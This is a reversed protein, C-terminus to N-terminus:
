KSIFNLHIMEQMIRRAVIKHGAETFHNEDFFLQKIKKGKLEKEFLPLLDTMRINNKTSFNKIVRQPLDVNNIELQATLPFLIFLFKIKNKICFNRIKLLYIKRESWGTKGDSFFNVYKKAQDINGVIVEKPKRPLINLIVPKFFYRYLYLGEVYKGIISFRGGLPGQINSKFRAHKPYKLKVIKKKRDYFWDSYKIFNSPNLALILLDPEFKIGKTALYVYDQLINYAGTAANIVRIKIKHNGLLKELRRPYTKLEKVGFGFSMSDGVILVRKENQRKKFEFDPNRQGFKNTQYIVKQSKHNTLSKRYNKKLQYSLRSIESKELINRFSTLWKYRRYSLEIIFVTTIIATLTVVVTM